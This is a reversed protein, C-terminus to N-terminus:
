KSIDILDGDPLYNRSFINPFIENDLPNEISINDVDLEVKNDLVNLRFIIRKINCDHVSFRHRFTCNTVEGEFNANILIFTDFYCYDFTFHELKESFTVENLTCNWFTIYQNYGELNKAQEFFCRYFFCGIFKLKETNIFSCSFFVCNIFNYNQDEKFEKSEFQENVYTKTEEIFM